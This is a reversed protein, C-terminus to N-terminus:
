PVLVRLLHSACLGRLWTPTSVLWWSQKQHFGGAVVSRSPSWSLVIPVATAVVSECSDARSRPRPEGLACLRSGGLCPLNVGM